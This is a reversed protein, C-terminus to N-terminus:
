PTIGLSIRVLDRIERCLKYMEKADLKDASKGPYRIEAATTLSRLRLRFGDWSSEMPLLLDLLAVLDHTLRPLHLALM